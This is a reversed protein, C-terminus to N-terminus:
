LTLSYICCYGQIQSKVKSNEELNTQSAFRLRKPSEPKKPYTVTRSKIIGGKGKFSGKTNNGLAARRQEREVDRITRMAADEGVLWYTKMGSKGKISVVGREVM